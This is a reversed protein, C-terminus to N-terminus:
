YNVILTPRKTSDAVASSYFIRSNYISENQLQIKFGYNGLAIMRNVMATVDINVLDLFASDTHPILVHDTTDIGPQTAWTTTAPNWSSNIRNIYFANSSGYNADVLNGNNPSHNSYLSLYASKVSTGAPLADMNFRFGARVYYVIGNVTWTDADLEPAPYATMDATVGNGMMHLEFPSGSGTSTYFTLSTPQKSLGNVTITVTNVGADGASDLVMLQFVYVGPILGNIVTSPLGETRIVPVNPGSVESWLWAVVKGGTDTASGTLRVSDIPLTITRSSDAYVVPKPDKQVPTTKQCGIFFLLSFSFAPLLLTQLLTKIPM